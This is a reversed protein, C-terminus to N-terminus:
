EGGKNTDAAGLGGVERRPLLRMVAFLALYIVSGRIFIEALSTSPVFLRSWDVDFM